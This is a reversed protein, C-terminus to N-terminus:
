KPNANMPFDREDFDLKVVVDEGDQHMRAFLV